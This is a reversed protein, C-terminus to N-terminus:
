RPRQQSQQNVPRPLENTGDGDEDESDSPPDWGARIRLLRNEEKLAAIKRQYPLAADEREKLAL